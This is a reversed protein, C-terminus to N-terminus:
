MYDSINLPYFWLFILALHFFFLTRLNFLFLLFILSLDFYVADIIISISFCCIFLSVLLTVHRGYQQAIMRRPRGRASSTSLLRQIIISIECDTIIKWSQEKNQKNYIEDM